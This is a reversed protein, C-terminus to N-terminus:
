PENFAGIFAAVNEGLAAVNYGGEMVVVTPLGLQAIARSLVPFDRRSIRFNSIPDDEFTDAGFSLVLMEAKWARIASLARNLATMYAGLATGHPLLLNLTSGIAAGEGCEDAHGWYFPYDTSPDAHISAFLVTPDDYFIDQTGNGHHYDIDLVAVRQRGLAQIHRAAIAANNLYCYGGMYDRGAHHGPPRCLAFASRSGRAIHEAANLATQASWYASTWTQATVPTSADFSYQGIRADIREHELQRRRVIPFTYGIADGTRGAATWARHVTQLFDVYMGDHVRLLPEIGRDTPIEHDPFHHVIHQARDPVEAYAMWEGNHLERVPSHALQRPDFFVKM